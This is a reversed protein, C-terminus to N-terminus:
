DNILECNIEAITTPDQSREVIEYCRNTEPSQFATTTFISDSSPPTYSVPYIQTDVETSGIIIVGLILAITLVGLLSFWLTAHTPNLESM